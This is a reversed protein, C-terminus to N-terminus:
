PKKNKQTARVPVATIKRTLVLMNFILYSAGAAITVLLIMWFASANGFTTFAKTLIVILMAVAM